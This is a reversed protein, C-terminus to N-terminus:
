GSRSAAAFHGCQPPVKQRSHTVSSSPLSAQGGHKCLSARGSGVCADDARNIRSKREPRMARVQRAATKKAKSLQRAFVGSCCRFKTLPSSSPSDLYVM